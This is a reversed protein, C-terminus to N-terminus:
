SSATDTLKDTDSDAHIGRGFRAIFFIFFHRATMQYQFSEALVFTIAYTTM